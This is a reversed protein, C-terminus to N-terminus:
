RRWSDIVAAVDDASVPRSILYGQAENCGKRRLADLQAATEVGEATISIGLSRGMDIIARVIAETDKRDPLGAIFSRDIKIKDFSFRLLYGLSSFGTGFDDLVIRVGWDM